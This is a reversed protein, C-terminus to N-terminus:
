PRAERFFKVRSTNFRFFRFFLNEVPALSRRWGQQDGVNETLYSHICIKITGYIQLLPAAQNPLYDGQCIRNVEKFIPGLALPIKGM